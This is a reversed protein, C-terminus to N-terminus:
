DPKKNRVWNIEQYVRTTLYDNLWTNIMPSDFVETGRTTMPTPANIVM